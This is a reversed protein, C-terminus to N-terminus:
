ESTEGCKQQCCKPAQNPYHLVTTVFNEWEKSMMIDFVKDNNMLRLNDNYLGLKEFDKRTSPADCWCCPLIYGDTTYATYQDINEKQVKKGEKNYYFPMCKPKIYDIM